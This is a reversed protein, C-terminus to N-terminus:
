SVSTMEGQVLKCLYHLERCDPYDNGSGTRRGGGKPAPCSIGGYVSGPEILTGELVVAGAAVISHRGVKCHDLLIAGMGILVDDDIEAGHLVVNHGVSVNNGILAVSKGYLTHIISGDQINVRNGLRISNVDGRLVTNFWISCYDGMVVDGIIVANDALYCEKGFKPTFGRVTKILAM